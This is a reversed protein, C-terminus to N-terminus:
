VLLSRRMNQVGVLPAARAAQIAENAMDTGDVSYVSQFKPAPKTIAEAFMDIM